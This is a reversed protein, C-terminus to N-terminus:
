GLISSLRNGFNIFDDEADATAPSTAREMVALKGANTGGTKEKKRDKWADHGDAHHYMFMGKGDNCKSCWKFKRKGQQLTATAPDSGAPLTYKWDSSSSSANNPSANQPCESKYHGKQNCGFCVVSTKDKKGKDGKKGGGNTTPQLTAKFGALASNIKKDITSMYGAPLEPEGSKSKTSVAPGWRGATKLERYEANSAKILDDITWVKQSVLTADAIRCAEVGERVKTRTQFAWQLFKQDSTEEYMSAIKLTLPDGRKIMDAGDLRDAYDKIKVNLAEVNEGPFDRLKLGELLRKQAELADYGAGQYVVTIIAAFVVPGVSNDGVEEVVKRRLSETISNRLYTGSWRLNQQEWHDAEKLREQMLQQIYKLPFRNPKLFLDWHEKTRPDVLYFCDWMGHEIHHRRTASKWAQILPSDTGEKPNLGAFKSGSYQTCATETKRASKLDSPRYQGSFIAGKHNQRGDRFNNCVWGQAEKDYSFINRKSDPDTGVFVEIQSDKGQDGSIILALGGIRPVGTQEPKVIEEWTVVKRRSTRGDQPVLNDEPLGETANGDQSVSNDEPASDFTFQDMYQAAPSIDDMRKEVKLFKLKIFKGEIEFGPDIRFYTKSGGEM